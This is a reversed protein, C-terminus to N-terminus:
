QLFHFHKDVNNITDVDIVDEGTKKFKHYTASAFRILLQM